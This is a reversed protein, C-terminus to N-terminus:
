TNLILLLAKKKRWVSASGLNKGHGTLGSIKQSKLLMFFSSFIIIKMSMGRERVAIISHPASEEEEGEEKLEVVDDANGSSGCCEETSGVM